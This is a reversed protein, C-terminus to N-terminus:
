VIMRWENSLFANTLNESLGVGSLKVITGVVDISRIGHKCFVRLDIKTLNPAHCGQFLKKKGLLPIATGAAFLQNLPLAVELM